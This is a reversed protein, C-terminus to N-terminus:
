GAPANAPAAVFGAVPTGNIEATPAFGGHLQLTAPLTDVVNVDFATATGINQIVLQYALLDGGEAPDDASKGPTVNRVSKSLNLEPEVVTVAPTDGSMTQPVGSEGHDYTLTASNRLTDGNDTETDNNVRAFYQIRILPVVAEVEANVDNETRTAVTGIDWTIGGKGGDAPFANFAAEGPPHGNIAAIGQFTYTIDYAANNELVYSLGAADLLDRIFLHHTIGEPLPVEVQFVKRAGIAPILTDALDSKDFAPAPVEVQAAATTEYDNLADGANPLAGIRMGLRSGDEGISGTGNLATARGPLSTWDAQLANVLIEHPQVIDDVRVDFTFSITSGAVIGDSSRWSFLPQNAGFTTTDVQDPPNAGGVNGVYTLNHGDLQDLVRPNFATATGINEATVTVTLIDAADASATSFSQTLDIQPENVVAKVQGFDHRVRKSGEDIYEVYAITSPAGNSLDKGDKTIAENKVRAIFEVWFEFYDANDKRNTLVVDGFAWTVRDQQCIPSIPPIPNGNPRRFGAGSYPWVNLDVPPAEICTLGAPLEDTITLDRLQAVPLNATLRFRVEEGISVGQVTDSSAPDDDSAIYDTISLKEITKPKANVPLMRVVATDPDSTYARAGAFDGTPRQPRRQNGVPGALSDYTAKVENVFTQLPAADDEFDVRYYLDVKAGPDIRELAKSHTHSFTLEARMGNKVENDSIEGEGSTDAGDMEADGDNDLGDRSFPRVYALDSADLIDHVTVDYAPARTFGESAAENEITLRYIYTDYADGDAALDTFHSCSLGIRDPPSEICVQKSVTLHPETVILKVQRVAKAPFGATEEYIREPPEMEGTEDNMFTAWFTSTLTNTSEEAHGNPLANFTNKPDNLLRTAVNARFWHGTQKIAVTKNFTWEVAGENPASVLPSLTPNEIGSTSTTTSWIYGQGDPLRDIVAIDRVAVLTRGPTRYGFWDGAYIQFTCEEGIQVKDDPAGPPPNNESCNGQQVKVLNFGVVRGQVGDLSYNNAIDRGGDGRAEDIAPFTLASGDSLNIQGVVDARFTL